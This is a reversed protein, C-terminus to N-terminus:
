SSIEGDEEEEEGEEEKKGRRRRKKKKQKKKKILRGVEFNGFVSVNQCLVVENEGMCFGQGDHAILCYSCMASRLDSALLILLVYLM